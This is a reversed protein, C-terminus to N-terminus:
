SPPLCWPGNRGRLARAQLALPIAVAAVLLWGMGAALPSNPPLSPGSRPTCSTTALPFNSTCALTAAVGFDSISEAFGIALTSWIAPALIPIVM